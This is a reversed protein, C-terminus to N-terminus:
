HCLLLRGLKHRPNSERRGSWRFHPLATLAGTKFVPSGLPETLEFRVVEAM